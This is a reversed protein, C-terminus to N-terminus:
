GLQFLSDELSAEAKMIYFNAKKQRNAEMLFFLSDDIFYKIPQDYDSFDFYSNIFAVSFDNRDFFADIDAQSRCSNGAKKTNCKKM